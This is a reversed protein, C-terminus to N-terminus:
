DTGRVELAKNFSFCVVSLIVDGEVKHALVALPPGKVVVNGHTLQDCM